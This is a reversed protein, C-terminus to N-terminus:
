VDAVGAAFDLELHGGVTARESDVLPLQTLVEPVRGLEFAQMDVAISGASLDRAFRGSVSWLDEDSGDGDLGAFGGELDVSIERLEADSATMTGHVGAVAINRDVDAAVGSIEFTLPFRLEGGDQELTTRLSAARLPRGLGLEALLSTIRLEVRRREPEITAALTGTARRQHDDIAFALRRLEMAEPTLRLRRRLWTRESADDRQEGLGQLERALDEVGQREGHLHGGVAEVEVVEFRMSWLAARDLTVHVQEVHLDVGERTLSVDRLEAQQWGLDLEGIDVTADLKRGIQHELEAKVRGAAWRPATWILVVAILM